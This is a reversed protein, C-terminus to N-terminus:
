AEATNDRLYKEMFELLASNERDTLLKILDIMVVVQGELETVRQVCGTTSKIIEPAANIEQYELTKIAHVQDVQYAIAHGNAKTVIVVFEEDSSLAPLGFHERVSIVPVMEDRIKMLGFMCKPMGPLQQISAKKEVENAQQVDVAYLSQSIRFVLSNQLAM